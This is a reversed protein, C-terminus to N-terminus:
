PLVQKLLTIQTPKMGFYANSELLDLTRAHTDDSTMIAFPIETKPAGVLKLFHSSRVRSLCLYIMESSPSDYILVMDETLVYFDYEDSLNSFGL